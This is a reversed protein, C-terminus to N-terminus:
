RPHPVGKAKGAWNHGMPKGCWCGGTHLTPLNETKSGGKWQRNRWQVARTRAAAAKPDKKRVM